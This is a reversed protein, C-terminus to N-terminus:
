KKSLQKLIDSILEIRTRAIIKTKGQKTVEIGYDKALSTLKDKQMARLETETVTVNQKPLITEVCTIENAFEYGQFRTDIVPYYVNNQEFFVIKKNKSNEEPYQEIGKLNLIIIKFEIYRSLINLFDKQHIATLDFDIKQQTVYFMKEIENKFKVLFNEYEKLLTEESSMFYDKKLFYLISQYFTWLHTQINEDPCKPVRYITYLQNNINYKKSIELPLEQQYTEGCLQIKSQNIGAVDMIMEVLAIDM